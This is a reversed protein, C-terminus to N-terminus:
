AEELPRRRAPLVPKRELAENFRQQWRELDWIEIRKAVSFLKVEKTLGALERLDPPVRIRGSRDIEVEENLALVGHVFDVVDPDFPDLGDLRAEVEQGYDDPTWGWVAGHSCNLVLSHVREAELKRRLSAPLSLRGKDDLTATATTRIGLM